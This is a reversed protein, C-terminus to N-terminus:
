RVETYVYEHQSDRVTLTRGNPGTGVLAEVGIAGPGASVLSMSGDPNKRTAVPGEVFGAKLWKAGAQDRITLVGTEPSRYTAALSALVAPDGPVTLRERRAKAQAKIQAAASAIEGAAEPKGDYVVELLRRLFPELMAAGSDSNTLVVAGIGAEPLVWFNSRYGLLTGGHTVVPVGYAVREFLGMGYWSDEGVVVGRKRRELLNAESVLRKGEPTLGKSLELQAYRAMDAATSWAAGAPRHAHVTFNFDNSMVTTRGDVDLGHPRAWDGRMAEANDFTTDRMGLPQFIKEDMATDFAAGLELKPYTLAGGLYGAASAMLNNYQFLEGFGSTPQTMALQRFTDSAPAEKDALIFAYDKRPLGTCACVLHRVLTARTTADSGLRFSPYLETVPQDWRLKGEDALVSLLLTAMGKTNSAVMFKTRPTVPEPSGLARVGIGGQWVVKGRDILAIGVGPVELARASQSVFDRLAQVRAPTLRHATKGAFSERAYGAPRLSQQIISAAASRKNLTAQSGDVIMVTWRDGKRLALASLETKQIPSTEYDISVREDWGDGPAASTVLRIVPTLNPKYAAWAKAAAARGDAAGGADVVAIGLDAEPAAFITASARTTVTWDKPQSYSVGSTTKGPTDTAAPSQAALAAPLSLLALALISKKISRM